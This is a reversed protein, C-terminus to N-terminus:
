NKVGANKAAGVPDEVVKLATEGEKEAAEKVSRQHMLIRSTQIVGVCGLAFNVSALFINKPKIILCWRTWIAGTATLAANQSLSLSEAPRFFDAVGALVLGWKMIPAWFHVTKPGIPSNWLRQLANPKPQEVTAEAATNVRRAFTQRLPSARVAARASTLVRTTPRFSM